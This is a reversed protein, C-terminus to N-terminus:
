GVKLPQDITENDVFEEKEEPEFGFLTKPKGEFLNKLIIYTAVGTLSGLVVAVIQLINDTKM